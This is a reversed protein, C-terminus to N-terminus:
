YNQQLGMRSLIGDCEDLSSYSIIIQGGQGNKKQKISIHAGYLESLAQSLSVVDTNSAKKMLGRSKKKKNTLNLQSKEQEMRRATWREEVARQAMQNQQQAPLNVLSRALSADLTGQRVMDQVKPGLRLLSLMVTITSKARGVLEGLQDNTYDGDQKIAELAIAEEMPNLDERQLNEILALLRLTKDDVERVIAPITSLGALLAARWRREGAIIEYGDETHRLVIPQIVGQAKITEALASISEPSFGSSTLDRPQKSNRKIQDIPVDRLSSKKKDHGVREAAAIEIFGAPIINAAKVVALTRKAKEKPM